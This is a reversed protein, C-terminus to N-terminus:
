IANGEGVISRPCLAARRDRDLTAVRALDGVDFAPGVLAPADGAARRRGFVGEVYGGARGTAASIVARPLQGGWAFPQEFQQRFM